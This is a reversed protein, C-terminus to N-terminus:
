TNKTPAPKATIQKLVADRSGDIEIKGQQMVIIRDVLSLIPVRHTAVVCTRGRLWTKMNEVIRLELTQDLSATPEDLLVIRPDQLYLRTLGLSQRQGVSMGEGGDSILMDLGRPTARVLKDLGSFRLAEFITEDSCTLSGMLLNDRLTGSFLKIEQPLYGINRRVDVPDLQRLELGDLTISGAHISYLGSLIKLLTSKGSGNEGLVAVVEKDTLQLTNINLNDSGEPDYRFQAGQIILDGNFVQRRSFQREAPREQESNVIENLGHLATKVQQWRAMTGALQTVPALTRSSLISVAIITGVTFEGAFVLYVGAVVASVYAVQQIGSAWYTLMAAISRQQTTKAANLTNIEEWKRQFFSEGRVAKVTEQGYSLETLLKGAASTGGLMEASLRAMTGQLLLSPTVILVMAAVIIWVVNGAIGYILALFILVFPIDAASGISSNTFFERVSGFERMMYVLSGPSAPRASLRIGNLKQLLFSSLELEISRGSIDMLYSRSIRLSAELIIALICGAVLAWLSTLSQNPIVRDYVQLAFLSVAVALLNAVLSGLVIDFILTRQTKFQGWFWHQQHGPGVHRHQIDELQPLATIYMGGYLKSLHDVPIRKQGGPIAVDALVYEDEERRTIVVYQGNKLMVCAPFDSKSLIDTHVVRGALGSRALARTVLQEPIDQTNSPLGATLDEASLDKGFQRIFVTLAITLPTNVGQHDTDPLTAINM